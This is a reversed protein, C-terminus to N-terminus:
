LNYGYLEQMLVYAAATLLVRLKTVVFRANDKPKHDELRLVEAKILV